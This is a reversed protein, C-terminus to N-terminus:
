VVKRATGIEAEYERLYEVVVVRSASDSLRSIFKYFIFGRRPSDPLRRSGSEALPLTAASDPLHHRNFIRFLRECFM